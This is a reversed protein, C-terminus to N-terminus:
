YLRSRVYMYWMASVLATLLLLSGTTANLGALLLILGLSGFVLAFVVAATLAPRTWLIRLFDVPDVFRFGCQLCAGAEPPNEAACKPCLRLRGVARRQESEARELLLEFTRNAQSIKLAERCHAIADAHNGRRLHIRIIREYSDLHTPFRRLTERHQLLDDEEMRFLAKRDAFYSLLPVAAAVFVLALLFIWGAPTGWFSLVGGFIGLVTLLCFLAETFNFAREILLTVIRFIPYVMLALSVLMIGSGGLFFQGQSEAM